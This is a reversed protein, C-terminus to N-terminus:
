HKAARRRPSSGAFRLSFYGSLRDSGDSNPLSDAVTTSGDANTTIQYRSRPGSYVVEDAGSGGSVVDNGPGSYIINTGGSAMVQDGASGCHYSNDGYLKVSNPSSGGWATTHQAFAQYGAARGTKLYHDLGSTYAGARVLAAVDSHSHLYYFENFGPAGLSATDVLGPGTGMPRETVVKEIVFEKTTPAFWDANNLVLVAEMGSRDVKTPFFYGLQIEGLTDPTLLEPLLTAADVVHFAGTGDNLFFTTGYANGMQTGYRKTYYIAAIDTAGDNNLDTRWASTYYKRGLNTTSSERSTDEFIRSGRNLLVQFGVDGFVTGGNKLFNQYDPEKQDTFTGPQFYTLNEGLAAIDPRGDGDFDAVVVRDLDAGQSSPNGPESHLLYPTHGWTGEPLLSLDSLQFGLASGYLVRLNPTTANGAVIVDQFGDGDLDSVGLWSASFCNGPHAWIQKSIWNPDEEFGVGTWRVTESPFGSAPGAAPLIIEVRGDGHLDGAAVAQSRTLSIAAPLLDSVNRFRGQGANLAVAIRWGLNPDYDGGAAGIVLDPLGDGNLDTLLMITPSMTSPVDGSFM